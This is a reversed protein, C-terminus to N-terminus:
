DQIKASFKGSYGAHDVVIGPAGRELAKRLDAPIPVKKMSIGDILVNVTEVTTIIRDEDARRIDTVITFSTTGLHTVSVTLELVDDLRAPSKWEVTQKVLHYDVVEFGFGIARFFEVTAVDVYEGYRANFVVKQADCESYRVRLYYRFNNSM